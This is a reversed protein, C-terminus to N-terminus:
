SEPSQKPKRHKKPTYKERAREKSDLYIEQMELIFVRKEHDSLEGGAFLAATEELLVNARDLGGKGYREAVTALFAEDETLFYNVDMDFLEALKYYINRDQPHSAGSEYNGLTRATVGITKAVDGKSLNLLERQERVKEGFRM